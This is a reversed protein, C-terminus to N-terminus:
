AHNISYISRGIDMEGIVAQRHHFKHAAPRRELGARSGHSQQRSLLEASFTEKEREM